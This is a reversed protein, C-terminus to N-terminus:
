LEGRCLVEGQAPTEPIVVAKLIFTKSYKIHMTSVAKAIGLGSQEM